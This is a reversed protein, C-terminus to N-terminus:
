PGAGDPDGLVVDVWVLRHRSAAAVTDSLPADPAPWLIGAGVVTLRRDPLIYSVRLNGPGDPFSATDRGPDGRHGADAMAAGGPGTPAPDVLRPHDLLTAIAEHRGDGDVPDINGIGTVVVPGDPPRLALSGDLYAAWLLAEDGGRRINRDAPGDPIPPAAHWALLHLRDGSPLDLAVDWHGQSSLRQIARVAPTMGEPLAAFPLEAWLLASLDTVGAVPLRSLLAMGGAGTFAGWGQADAARGLRGDGDLDLGTALGANPALALRHPYAAGAAALVEALAVLGAGHLDWDVGQLLLVDADAASIVGAVAAVQPDTGSLIDALM